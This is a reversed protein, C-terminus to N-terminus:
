ALPLVEVDEVGYTYMDARDDQAKLLERAGLDRLAFYYDFFLKPRVTLSFNLRSCMELELSNLNSLDFMHHLKARVTALSMSEDIGMKIGIVIATLMYARWNAHTLVRRRRASLICREVLIFATIPVTDDLNLLHRLEHLFDLAASETFHGYIRVLEREQRRDDPSNSPPVDDADAIHMGLAVAIGADVQERTLETGLYRDFDHTANLRAFGDVASTECRVFGLAKGRPPCLDRGNKDCFIRAMEPTAEPSTELSADESSGFTTLTCSTHSRLM